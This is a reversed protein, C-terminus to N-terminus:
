RRWDTKSHGGDWHVLTLARYSKIDGRLTEMRNFKDRVKECLLLVVNRPTYLSYPIADQRLQIVDEESINGLGNCVKPFQKTNLPHQAPGYLVKSPKKLKVNQLGRFMEEPIATVQTGTDLKFSVVKDGLKVSIQWPVGSYDTVVGLFAMDDVNLEDIAAM